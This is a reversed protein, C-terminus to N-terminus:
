WMLAIANFIDQVMMDTVENILQTEVTELSRSADFNVFNSFNKNFDLDPHKPCKFEVKSTITLRNETAETDGSVGVPEIRYDVISGSVQYDGEEPKLFLRTENQFKDRLKETFVQSLTPATQPAQNPFYAISISKVDDPIKVGSFTYIGCASLLVVILFISIRQISFINSWVM